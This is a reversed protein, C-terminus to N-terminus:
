RQSNLSIEDPLRGILEPLSQQAFVLVENGQEASWSDVGQLPKTDSLTSLTRSWLQQDDALKTIRLRIELTANPHGNLYAYPEIILQQRNKKMDTLLTQWEQTASMRNVEDSTWRVMDMPRMDDFLEITKSIAGVAIAIGLVADGMTSFILQNNILLPQGPVPKALGEGNGTKAQAILDRPQVLILNETPKIHSACGVVLM